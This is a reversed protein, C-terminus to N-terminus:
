WSYKSADNIRVTRDACFASPPPAADATKSGVWNAGWEREPRIMPSAVPMMIGFGLAKLIRAPSLKQLETRAPGRDGPKEHCAACRKQYVAEGALAPTQASVVPVALLTLLCFTGYSPAM